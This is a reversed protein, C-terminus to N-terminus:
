WSHTRSVTNRVLTCLPTVFTKLNVPRSIRDGHSVVLGVSVTLLLWFSEQFM